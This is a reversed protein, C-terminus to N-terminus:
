EYTRKLNQEYGFASGCHPILSLPPNRSVIEYPGLKEAANLLM